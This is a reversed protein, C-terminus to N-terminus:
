IKTNSRMAASKRGLESDMQRYVTKVGLLREDSGMIRASLLARTGQVVIGVGEQFRERPARVHLFGFGGVCVAEASPLVGHAVIGSVFLGPGQM